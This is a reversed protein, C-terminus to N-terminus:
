PLDGGDFVHVVVSGGALLVTGVFPPVDDPIAQGTTVVAVGHRVDPAAPDVLAWLCIREAQNHASLIRAGRKMPISTMGTGATLVYKWIARM